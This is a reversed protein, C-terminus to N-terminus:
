YVNKANFFSEHTNVLLRSDHSLGRLMVCLQIMSIVSLESIKLMPFLRIDNKIGCPYCLKIDAGKGLLSRSDCTIGITTAGAEKARRMCDITTVANGSSSLFVAVDGHQLQAMATVALQPIIYATCNIGAQMFMLEAMQASYSSGGTGFLCIRRNAVSANYIATVASEVVDPNLHLLADDFVGAYLKCLKRSIATVSDDAQFDVLNQELNKYSLGFRYKFEAFGSYGFAQCYRTINSANTGIKGALQTISYREADMPHSLLYDSIKRFTKPMKPYLYQINFLLDHSPQSESPVNLRLAETDM